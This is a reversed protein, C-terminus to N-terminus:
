VNFRVHMIEGDQVVYTKGEVRLKGAERCAKLSGLEVLTEFPVIEARIFGREMDTHVKGAAKQAVTGAPISWARVEDDGVTFFSILNLQAYAERSILHAAPEGLGMEKAFAMQEEAGLAAVEAAMKLCVAVARRGHLKEAPPLPFSAADTNEDINVVLMQPTLSLFNLGALGTLDTEDLGANWLPTERELLEKAKLVAHKRAHDMPQIHDREILRECTFLDAFLMEGDLKDLDRLIDPPDAALPTACGRLVHLFLSSGKILEFYREIENRRKGEGAGPWAAEKARIEAYITKKPKFIQALRDIRTDPVKVAAIHVNATDQGTLANLLTSKGCGALGIVTVDM